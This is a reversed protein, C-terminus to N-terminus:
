LMSQRLASSRALQAMWWKSQGKRRQLWLTSCRRILIYM